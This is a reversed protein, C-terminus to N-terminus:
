QSALPLWWAAKSAVSAASSIALDMPADLSSAVDM